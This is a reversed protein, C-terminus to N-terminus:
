VVRSSPPATSEGTEIEAIVSRLDSIMWELM